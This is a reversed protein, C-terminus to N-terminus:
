WKLLLLLSTVALAIVFSLMMSKAETSIKM